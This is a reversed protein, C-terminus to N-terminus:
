TSERETKDVITVPKSLRERTETFVAKARNIVEENHIEMGRILSKLAMSCQEFYENDDESQVFCISLISGSRAMNLSEENMENIIPNLYGHSVYMFQGGMELVKYRRKTVTRDNPQMSYEILVDDQKM